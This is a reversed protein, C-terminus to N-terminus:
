RTKNLIKNLINEIDNYEWYPIRILNWNNEKAYKNKIKDNIVVSDHGDGNYIEKYHFEGDYEIWIRENPLIFDPRLPNGKPSLLNDFYPKDYVYDINFKDLVESIKKEGRTQNCIPCEKNNKFNNFTRDFVHGKQCKIYLPISNNIYEKSLLEFGNLSIYEKVEKYTFKFKESLHEYKCIKCRRGYKFNDWSIYCIHGKDCKMKMPIDSKIYTEELLEYDFSEIYKKVCDYSLKRDNSLKEFACKRCRKGNRFNGFTVDYKHGKPCQVEIKTHNNKYEKSLLKYGFSEIYNKVEEYSLKKKPIIMVGKM